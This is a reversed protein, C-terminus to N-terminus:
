IAAADAYTVDDVVTAGPAFLALFDELRGANLAEIARRAVPSHLSAADM